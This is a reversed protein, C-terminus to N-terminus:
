SRIKSKLFTANPLRTMMFFMPPSSGNPPSMGPGCTNPSVSRMM